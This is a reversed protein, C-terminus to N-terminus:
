EKHITIGSKDYRDAKAFYKQLTNYSIGTYEAVETLFQFAKYEDKNRNHYIYM